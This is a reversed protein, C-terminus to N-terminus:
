LMTCVNFVRMCAKVMNNINFPIHCFCQPLNCFEIYVVKIQISCGALKHGQVLRLSYQLISNACTFNQIWAHRIYQVPLLLFELCVQMETTEYHLSRYLLYKAHTYMFLLEVSPFVLLWVM